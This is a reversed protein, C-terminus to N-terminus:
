SARLKELETQKRRQEPVLETLQKIVTSLNKTMALHTKVAESQKTGFQNEGNKYGDTYGEVNIMEELERLSVIMFAASEILSLVTTMKNKDLDRFVKKLRNVEKKIKRTKEKAQIEKTEMVPQSNIIEEKEGAANGQTRSKVTQSSGRVEAVRKGPEAVAKAKRGSPPKTTRGAAKSKDTSKPKDEELVHKIAM